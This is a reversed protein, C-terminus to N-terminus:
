AGRSKGWVQKYGEDRIRQYRRVTQADHELASPDDLVRNLKRFFTTPGYGFQKYIAEHQNGQYKWTQKAFDLIEKDSDGLGVQPQGAVFEDARAVACAM